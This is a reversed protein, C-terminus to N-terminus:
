SQLPVRHLEIEAPTDIIGIAVVQGVFPLWAEAMRQGELAKTPDTLKWAITCHAVWDGLEQFPLPETVHDQLLRHLQEKISRLGRDSDPALYVVSPPTDFLRVSTLRVPVLGANRGISAVIEHVKAVDARNWVGLTVHPRYPGVHLDDSVENEALERWLDRIRTELVEDFWASIGIPM